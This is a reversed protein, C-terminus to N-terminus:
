RALYVVMALMLGISVIVAYYVTRVLVGSGDTGLNSEGIGSSQKSM